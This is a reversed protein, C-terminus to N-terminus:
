APHGQAFDAEIINRMEEADEDPLIGVCEALSYIREGVEITVKVKCHEAIGELPQIPRLIGDEYIADVTQTM